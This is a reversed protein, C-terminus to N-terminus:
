CLQSVGTDHKCAAPATGQTVVGEHNLTSRAVQQVCFTGFCVARLRRLKAAVGVPVVALAQGLCTQVICLVGKKHALALALRSFQM